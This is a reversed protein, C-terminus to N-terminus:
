GGPGAGSRIPVLGVEAHYAVRRGQITMAQDSRATITPAAPPNQAPAIAGALLMILGLVARVMM